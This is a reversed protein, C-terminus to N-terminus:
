ENDSEESWFMTYKDSYSNSAELPLTVEWKGDGLYYM